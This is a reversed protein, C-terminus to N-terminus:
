GRTCNKQKPQDKIPQFEKMTHEKCRPCRLEFRILDVEMQSMLYGCKPCCRHTVAPEIKPTEM